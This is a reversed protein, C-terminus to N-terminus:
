IGCVHQCLGRPLVSDLLMILVFSEQKAQLVILTYQRLWAELYKEQGRKVALLGDYPESGAEM